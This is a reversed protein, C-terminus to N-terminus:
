ALKGLRRATRGVQKQDIDFGRIQRGLTKAAVLTTGSGCMPDFVIGGQPSLAKVFHTAEREGQQWPHLDKTRKGTVSDTFWDWWCPVPPKAFALIPKWTNHIRLARFRLSGADLEVKMMWQYSLHPTMQNAAEIAFRNGTYALCWGGPRLVRAALKALKGYLPISEGDYPPDTFILDVSNDALTKGLKAFDGCQVPSDKPLKAVPRKKEAERKKEAKAIQQARRQTVGYDAAAQKSGKKAVRAALAAKEKGPVKVKADPRSVGHTNVTNRRGFWLSVTSRDVGLAKGVQAQTYKVKDEARLEFAVKKMAAKVERQQDSSLNRRLFNAQYVYAKREATTLGKVIRTPAEKGAIAFRHHGDLVTGDEAVAIRDRVGEERISVKLAEREETSLPPILSALEPDVKTMEQIKM